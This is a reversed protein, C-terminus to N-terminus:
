SLSMYGLFVALGICVNSTVNLISEVVDAYLEEKRKFNIYVNEDAKAKAYIRKMRWARAGVGLFLCIILLIGFM